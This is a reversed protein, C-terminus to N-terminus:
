LENFNVVEGGARTALAKWVSLKVAANISRVSGDCMGINTTNKLSRLGSLGGQGACSVDPREDNLMRTATFTGQLFHGDMWSACRDAAIHKDNKWEQVGSDEILGKLADKTLLIHQRHVNTAKVMTDGKLTEGTMMTNSTGDTIQAITLASKAFFVGDNDDLAYKSGANFLYNTAGYDMSVSAIPDDPSLFTKVIVKRAEANAKDGVPKTFDITKFLNDQEVYPLLYALTSFGNADMGAPFKQNVDAYAHVSIGIQKLNNQSRARAEAEKMKAVAPLMLGLGIAFLALLILLHFLTFGSRTRRHM